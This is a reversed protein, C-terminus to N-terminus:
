KVCRPVAAFLRSLVTSPYRFDSIPGEWHQTESGAGDAGTVDDEDQQEGGLDSVRIGVGAARWLLMINAADVIATDTTVTLVKHAMIQHARM